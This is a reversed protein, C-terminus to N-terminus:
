GLVYFLGGAKGIPDVVEWNNRCKLNRCVTKVFSSKQMTECEFTMNPHYLRQSEKLQSITSPGGLGRSNWTLIRM